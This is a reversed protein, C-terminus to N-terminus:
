ETYCVQNSIPVVGAGGSADDGGGGGGGGRLLEPYDDLHDWDSDDALDECKPATQPSAM